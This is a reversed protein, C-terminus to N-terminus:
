ETVRTFVVDGLEETLADIVLTDGDLTYPTEEMSGKWNSGIYLTENEIFYVGGLNMEEYISALLENFDFEGLTSELYARVGMGYEQTMAADAADKDLGYSAFEAYMLEEYANIMSQIFADADTLEASVVMSGDNRMDILLNLSLEDVIGEMDLDKGSLTVTGCWLGQIQKTAATTFRPDTIIREGETLSCTVCTKPAETTAEEWSHGLAEGETLGCASCTKPAECTAEAWTHGLPAGEVEGCHECTKATECTAALWSHGLPAGETEGCEACTKPTVCDADNWTEHKCFCGTLLSLCMVLILIAPIRKKM